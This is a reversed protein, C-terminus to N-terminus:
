DLRVNRFVPGRPKDKTGYPQYKFTVPKNFYHSQRAWFAEREAYTFGTGIEFTGFVPHQVVLTGMVGAGILGASQKSRQVGGTENVGAENENHMMETMDIITAEDDQHRKLKLLTQQKLTSQGSKYYGNPDRLMIGEYGQMLCWEEYELMEQLSHIVRHDLLQVQAINFTDKAIIEAVAESAQMLRNTYPYSPHSHCDFVIYSFNPTGDHSMIQSSIGPRGDPHNTFPEWGKPNNYNAGAHPTRVILEGDLNVRLAALVSRTAINAIPKFSRSLAQGLGLVDAFTLCRIGDIKPSGVLPFRLDKHLLEGTHKDTLSAARLPKTIHYMTHHPDYGQPEDDSISM